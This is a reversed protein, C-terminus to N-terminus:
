VRGRMGCGISLRGGGDGEEVVVEGGGVRVMVRCERRLGGRERRSGAWAGLVLMRSRLARTAASSDSVLVARM